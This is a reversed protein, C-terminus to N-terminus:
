ATKILQLHFGSYNEESESLSQRISIIQPNLKAVSKYLKIFPLNLDNGILEQLASRLVDIESNNSTEMHASLEADLRSLFIKDSEGLNKGSYWRIVRRVMATHSQLMARRRRVPTAFARGQDPNVYFESALLM